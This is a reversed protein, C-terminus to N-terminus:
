SGALWEAELAELSKGYVERMRTSLEGSRAYYIQRLREAGYRDLLFALFAASTRYGDNSNSSWKADDILDALRILRQPNSRAWRQLFTPGFEGYRESTLASALGENMFSTGPRGLGNSIIVHNAEHTLLANLDNDHPAFAVAHVANTEPFAVGARANPLPPDLEGGHNYLFMAVRAGEAIGLRSVTFAYQDELVDAFAAANTEAFSGPRAYITFRASEFTVWARSPSTPAYIMDCGAAAMAAVFVAALRRDGRM